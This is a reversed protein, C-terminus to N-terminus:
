ENQGPGSCGIYANLSELKHVFGQEQLFDLARYITPPAAGKKESQLIQLLDYAKVPEHSRWVLQLVRRRLPTLRVDRQ